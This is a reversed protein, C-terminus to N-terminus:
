LAKKLMAEFAARNAMGVRSDVLKGTKDIVFTTPVGSLGGFANALEDSGVVIQYTMKQEKTFSSLSSIVDGGGREMAVGIFVVDGEYQKQLAVIDPLEARCPRCWTGWFNLFIVKGKLDKMSITKGDKDVWSFNAAYNKDASPTLAQMQSINDKHPTTAATNEGADSGGVGALLTCAAMLVCYIVLSLFGTTFRLLASM